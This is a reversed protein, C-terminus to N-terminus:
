VDCHAQFCSVVQNRSAQKSQDATGKTLQPCFDDLLILGNLDQLLLEILYTTGSILLHNLKVNKVSIVLM